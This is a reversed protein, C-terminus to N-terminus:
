RADEAVGPVRAADAVVVEDAGGVVYWTRVTCSIRAGRRVGVAVDVEAAVAAQVAVAALAEVGLLLQDVALAGVM